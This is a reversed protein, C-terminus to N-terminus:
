PQGDNDGDSSVRQPTEKVLELATRFRETDARRLLEFICQSREEGNGFGFDVFLFSLLRFLRLTSPIYPRHALLRRWQEIAL